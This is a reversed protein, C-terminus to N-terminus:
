KRKRRKKIKKKPGLKNQWFVRFFPQVIGVTIAGILIAIISETAMGASLGFISATVITDNNIMIEYNKRNM